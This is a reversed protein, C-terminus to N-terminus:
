RTNVQWRLPRADLGQKIVDLRNVNARLMEPEYILACHSQLSTVHVGGADVGCDGVGTCQLPKLYAYDMQM